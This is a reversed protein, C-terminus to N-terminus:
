HWCTVKCTLRMGREKHLGSFLRGWTVHNTIFIEKKRGRERGWLNTESVQVFSTNQVVEEQSVLVLVDVHTSWVGRQVVSHFLRSRWM